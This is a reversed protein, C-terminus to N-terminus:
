LLTQMDAYATEILVTLADADANQGPRLKVHRMQKGTGQLLSNPDHLATGRFFGVNVHSKFVGVYAFAAEGVCATPYNDHLTERVDPGCGRMVEFWRQAVPGLEGDRAQMWAEIAASQQVAGPLLFLKTMTSMVMEESTARAPESSTEVRKPRARM